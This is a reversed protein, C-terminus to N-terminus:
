KSFSWFFGANFHKVFDELTWNFNLLGNNPIKKPFFNKKQHIM